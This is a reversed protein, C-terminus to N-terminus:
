FPGAIMFPDFPLNNTVMAPYTCVGIQGHDVPWPDHVRINTGYPSGDGWAGSIVVAHATTRGDELTAIGVMWIPTDRLMAALSRVDAPPSALQWGFQSIFQTVNDITPVLGYNTGLEAGNTSVSIDQDLVMAASAAWCGMRFHQARLTVRHDIEITLGLARWTQTGVVGRENTIHRMQQLLAVAAATRPGFAGDVRLRRYGPTRHLQSNLLHQALRVHLSSSGPGIQQM